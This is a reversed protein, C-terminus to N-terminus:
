QQRVMRYGQHDVDFYSCTNLWEEGQTSGGCICVGRGFVAGAAFTRPEPDYYVQRVSPSSAPSFAEVVNMPVIDTSALSPSVKHVGGFLYLAQPQPMAYFDLLVRDPAMSLCILHLCTYGQPSQAETCTAPGRPRSLSRYESTSTYCYTLSVSDQTNKGESRKV